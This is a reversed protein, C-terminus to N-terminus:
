KNKLRDSMTKLDMPYKIHDYYDPVEAISVPQLFPWSSQNNKIQHLVSALHQHIKETEESEDISRSQRLSRPVSRFGLERLGPINEATLCTRLGEKFCNLGPHIKSQELQKQRFLEKVIESQKRVVSNFQTYIIEPHLECQMLTAGEYEKIFGAYINRHLKIEKTFGQKKFYGIAFEDAFTLFHRINLQNSYDKLHNMLHTGYGKVQQSSTVACFVIEIFGQSAFTRFCIGGIPRDDKVLTLTKHKGDFVLQTIYDKPMGPLQHAFVSQLGLLWLMCQKSVPKHLSNGIIHFSIEHRKEEEKAAEDRAAMTAVTKLMEMQTKYEDENIRSLVKLVISDSIDENVTEKKIRKVMSKNDENQDLERKIGSVSSSGSTPFVPKFSADFITSDDKSLENRFDELFKPLREFVILKEAPLKEKDKDTHYKTLMLNSVFNYVSKLFTKGFINSTKFQRLSSCFAPVWCFILWRTYNIKYCSSEENTMPDKRDRPAEFDWSNICHLLNKALETFIQFELKSTERLHGYKIFVFNSVIKQIDPVEFPPNGVPGQVVVVTSQSKTLIGHRLLKSLYIYVKKIDLDEQRSISIYLNEMDVINNLLKNLHEDSLENLDCVHQVKTFLQSSILFFFSQISLSFTHKIFLLHLKVFLHSFLFDKSFSVFLINAIQIIANIMMKPVITLNMVNERSKV